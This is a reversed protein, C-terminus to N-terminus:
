GRQSADRQEGAEGKGSRPPAGEGERRAGQWALEAAAPGTPALTICSSPHTCVPHCRYQPTIRSGGSSGDRSESGAPRLQGRIGAPHSARPRIRRRGGSDGRRARGRNRVAPAGCPRALERHTPSAFSASCSSSLGYWSQRIARVTGSTGWFEPTLDVLAGTGWSGRCVNRDAGQWSRTPQPHLVRLLLLLYAM